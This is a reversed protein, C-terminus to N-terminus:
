AAPRLRVIPLHHRGEVSSVVLAFKTGRKNKIKAQPAACPSQRPWRPRPEFRPNANAPRLDDYVELPTKGALAVSPRFENYWFVYLAIERRMGDLTLPILIRRTCENKMSRMFREVIAISGFKGVAGFRPRIGRRRCWRKFSECWFQLRVLSSASLQM